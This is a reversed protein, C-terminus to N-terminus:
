RRRRLSGRRGRRRAEAEVGVEVGARIEDHGEHDADVLGAEVDGVLAAQAELDVGGGRDAAGAVHGADVAEVQLARRDTSTATTSPALPPGARRRAASSAPEASPRGAGPPRPCRRAQVEVGCEVRHREDHSLVKVRAMSESKVVSM